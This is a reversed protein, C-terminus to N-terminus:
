SMSGYMSVKVWGANNLYGESSYLAYHPFDNLSEILYSEEFWFEYHISENLPLYFSYVDMTGNPWDQEPFYMNGPATFDEMSFIM